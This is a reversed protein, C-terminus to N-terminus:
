RDLEAQLIREGRDIVKRSEAGDYRTSFARLPKSANSVVTITFLRLAVTQVSAESRLGTRRLVCSCLYTGDHAPRVIGWSYRFTYIINEVCATVM